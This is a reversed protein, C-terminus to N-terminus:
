KRRGFKIVISDSIKKAPIRYIGADDKIWNEQEYQEVSDELEVLGEKTPKYLAIANTSDYALYSDGVRRIITVSYSDSIAVNASDGPQYYSDIVRVSDEVKKFDKAVKDLKSKLSEDLVEIDEIRNEPMRVVAVRMGDNIVDCDDAGNRKLIFGEGLHKKISKELEQFHEEDSDQVRSKKYLALPVAIRVERTGEKTAEKVSEKWLEEDEAWVPKNNLLDEQTYTEEKYSDQVMMQRCERIKETVAEIKDQLKNQEKAYKQVAPGNDYDKLVEPDNEMDSYSQDLKDELSSLEQKLDELKKQYFEKGRRSKRGKKIKQIKDDNVAFQKETSGAVYKVIHKKGGFHEVYEAEVQGYNPLEVLVTEKKRFKPKTDDESDQVKELYETLITETNKFIEDIDRVSVFGGREEEKGNVSFVYTAENLLFCLYFEPEDETVGRHYYAVMDDKIEPSTVQGILYQAGLEVIATTTVDSDIIQESNESQKIVTDDIADEKKYSKVIQRYARMVDNKEKFPYFDTKQLREMLDDDGEASLDNKVTIGFVVGDKDEVSLYFTGDEDEAYKLSRDNGIPSVKSVKMDDAKRDASDQIRALKKFDM